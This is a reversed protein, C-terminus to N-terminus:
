DGNGSESFALLTLQTGKSRQYIRRANVHLNKKGFPLDISLPFDEVRNKEPLVGELLNKLAAFNWVGDHLEYIVKNEVDKSTTKFTDHFADNAQQVRLDGRLTLLPQDVLAMFETLGRKIEDVDVLLIVAGDIKNETTRYPRIRLSYWRGERDQVDHEQTKLSDIVESVLKDLNAIQVNPNIDSIRRGVDSPILNFFREALPTFRRVTLDNGLMLIPMSVSSLLNSLDNNLQSLEVNRTQLEENLTTLEENTSQLEEKATELEENTSQLEENSSQIEENASKLEENTAEQEEIIAQLSEKTTTLEERLRIIERRGDPTSTGSGRSSKEKSPEALIENFLILFFRETSPNIRFPIVELSVLRRKGLFNFEIGDKRITTDAKVARSVVTRVDVLLDQRILRLLNLSADGPTHELYAGTHGRFQLVEMKANIVVGSPAYQSLLLRDVHRNLDMTGAKTEHAGIPIPPLENAEQLFPKPLFDVDPRSAAEVKAYVKHKKDVLTFLDAFIGITESGGLLLNGGPKLAYHFIPIVKKQLLPGLYILVNRCSILDLKSFPPDEILNQRAFVCSDRIFKAIQYNGNELRHFFRRLREPSVHTAITDPYIGARAKALANESIDTAFIQMSRGHSNKGLFEFVAIALSYVEEGTSCGPVWIRVPENPKKKVIKPFVRRRLAAFVPPDRFFATVNILLDHFLNDVETPNQQLYTVYHKLNDIKRLVMRRMIRRKLTSHKYYSFDVGNLARLLSFVRQLDNQPEGESEIKKPRLFAPHRAIRQLENAIAPPDLVFDVCGSAYANHPLTPFSATDEKQAFTIGGESKIEELGSIGDTGNGSLLIGVSSNAQDAALSQFFLNIPRHEGNSPRRSEPRLVGGILKLQRNQQLVYVHGPKIAIPETVTTVPLKTERQFIQDLSSQHHPDLHCIFVFAAHIDTPLNRLIGIFAEMGGASGGVGVVLFPRAPRRASDPAEVVDNSEVASEVEPRAAPKTKKLKPSRRSKKM